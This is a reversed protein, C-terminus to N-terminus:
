SYTSRRPDAVPLSTQATRDIRLGAICQDLDAACQVAAFVDLVQHLFDPFGQRGALLRHLDIKACGFAYDADVESGGVAQSREQIEGTRHDNGARIAVLQDRAHHRDLGVTINHDSIGRAFQQERLGLARHIGGLPQHAAAQFIDLFLELQKRKVDRGPAFRHQLELQAITSERRGLDRSEYQPLQLLIGLRVEALRDGLCDDCDRRIEVIRLPLGGFVGAADRTQFNQPQDVFGSRRRESVPQVLALVADDRDVIQAAAREVDGNELQVVANEFHQGGIAVRM